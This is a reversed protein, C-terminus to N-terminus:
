SELYVEGEARATGTFTNNFVLLWVVHPEPGADNTDWSGAVLV